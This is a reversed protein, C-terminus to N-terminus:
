NWRRRSLILVTVAICAVNLGVSPILFAPWGKEVQGTLVNFNEGWFRALFSISLFITAVVALRRSVSAPDNGALSAHLGLLTICREEIATLDAVVQQLEDGIDEAYLQTDSAAGPLSM